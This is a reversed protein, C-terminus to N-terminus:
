PATPQVTRHPRLWAPVLAGLSPSANRQLSHEPKRRRPRRRRFGEPGVTEATATRIWRGCLGMDPARRIRELHATARTWAREILRGQAQPDTVLARIVASAIKVRDDVTRGVQVRAPATEQQREQVEGGAQRDRQRPRYGTVDMGLSKAQVWVERRFSEDGAVRIKSWGRHQAVKLMDAVADPYTQTAILSRGKYRFIPEKARHDRFFQEARGQRDREVLYRNLVAAPMDGKATSRPRPAGPGSTPALRNQDPSPQQQTAM